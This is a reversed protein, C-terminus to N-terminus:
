SDCHVESINLGTMHELLTSVYCSVSFPYFNEGFVFQEIHYLFELYTDNRMSHMYDYLQDYTEFDRKDIFCAPPIHEEVNNGGLYIPVCGVLFSDIIKELIYGPIDCANEYAFNFRYQPLVDGKRDIKGKWTQYKPRLAKTLPRIRNFKRLIWHNSSFAYHDWGVGYLDFDEPHNREFWEICRLRESYIEKSHIVRKNSAILVSLKSKKDIDKDIKEVMRRPPMNLKIYKQGDVFDDHWTFIKTWEKHNELVWNNPKIVECEHLILYKPKEFKEIEDVLYAYKWRRPTPRPYDFVLICDLSQVDDVLDLTQMSIGNAKATQYLAINGYFADDGLGCDDHTLMYNNLVVPAHYSWVGIRV